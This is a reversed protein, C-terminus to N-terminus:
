ERQHSLFEASGTAWGVFLPPLGDPRVPILRGCAAEAGFLEVFREFADFWRATRSFSHVIMVAADTKFRRAEIVASATRHLLQYHVDDPLPQELGLLECIFAIRELKGPSAGKLWKVMPQDFPEDVKGEIAAAFTRGGARILGFLDNQSDGRHSGPLPVKHEPLGILLQPDGGIKRFIAAIEPPLGRAAEWCEALAMASRGARWHKGPDALLRCWDDAGRSPVHIRTMTQPILM